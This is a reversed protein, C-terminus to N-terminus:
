LRYFWRKNDYKIEGAIKSLINGMENVPKEESDPDESTRKEASYVRYVAPRDKIKGWQWEYHLYFWRRLGMNEGVSWYLSLIHPRMDVYFNGDWLINVGEEISSDNEAKLEWNEDVIFYMNLFDTLLAMSEKLSSIEREGSKLPALCKELDEVFSSNGWSPGNPWTPLTEASVHKRM